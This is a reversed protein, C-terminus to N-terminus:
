GVYVIDRKREISSVFCLVFIISACRVDTLRTHAYAGSRRHRPVDM